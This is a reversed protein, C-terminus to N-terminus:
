ATRPALAIGPWRQIRPWAVSAAPAGLGKSGRKSAHLVNCLSAGEAEIIRLWPYQQAWAHKKVAVRCTVCSGRAPALVYRRIGLVSNLLM